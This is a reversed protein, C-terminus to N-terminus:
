ASVPSSVSVTLATPVSYSDLSLSYREASPKFVIVTILVTTDGDVYLVGKAVRYDAFVFGGACPCFANIVISTSFITIVRRVIVFFIIRFFFFFFGGAQQFFAGIGKLGVFLPKDDVFVSFGYGVVVDGSFSFSDEGAALVKIIVQAIFGAAGFEAVPILRRGSYRM